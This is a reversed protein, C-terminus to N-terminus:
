RKRELPLDVFASIAEARQKAELSAFYTKLLVPQKQGEMYLKFIPRGDLQEESLRIRAFEKWSREKQSIAFNFIEKTFVLAQRKHDLVQAKRILSAPLGLLFLCAAPLLVKWYHESGQFFQYTVGFVLLSVICLILGLRNLLKPAPLPFRIKEPNLAMVHLRRGM